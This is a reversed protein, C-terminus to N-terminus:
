FEVALCSLIQCTKRNCAPSVCDLQRHSYFHKRTNFCYPYITKCTFLNLNVTLLWSIMMSINVICYSSLAKMIKLNQLAIKILSCIFYM